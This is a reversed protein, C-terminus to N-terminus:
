FRKGVGLAVETLTGKEGFAGIKGVGLDLLLGSPPLALEVGASATWIGVADDGGALLGLRGAAYPSFAGPLLYARMGARLAIAQMPDGEINTAFDASIALHKSANGGVDLGVLNVSDGNASWTRLGGSFFGKREVRLAVPAADASATDTASAQPAPATEMSAPQADALRAATCLAVVAALSIVIRINREM